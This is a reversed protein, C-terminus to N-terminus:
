VLRTSNKPHFDIKIAMIVTYIYFTPVHPGHVYYTNFRASGRNHVLVRAFFLLFAYPWKTEKDTKQQKATASKVTWKWCSSNLSLLKLIGANSKEELFDDTCFYTRKGLTVVFFSLLRKQLNKLQYNENWNRKDESSKRM